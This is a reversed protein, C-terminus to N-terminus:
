KVNLKILDTFDHILGKDSVLYKKNNEDTTIHYLADLDLGNHYRKVVTRDFHKYTCVGHKKKNIWKEEATFYNRLPLLVEDVRIDKCFMGNNWYELVYHTDYRTIIAPYEPDNHVYGDKYYICENNSIFAPGEDIPRDIIGHTSWVLANTGNFYRAAPRGQLSHVKGNEDKSFMFKKQLNCQYARM